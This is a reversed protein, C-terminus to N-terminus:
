RRGRRNNQINAKNDIEVNMMKNEITEHNFMKSEAKLEDESIIEAYCHKIMSQADVGKVEAIQDKTYKILKTGHQWTFDKLIKVQM